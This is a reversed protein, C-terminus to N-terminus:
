QASFRKGKLGKPKMSDATEMFQAVTDIWAATKPPIEAEETLWAEVLSVDCGLAEALTEPSWRMITLCEELREPTM